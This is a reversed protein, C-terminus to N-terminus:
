ALRRSEQDLAATLFAIAEAAVQDYFAPGHGGSRAELIATHPIGLARLKGALRVAGDLWHEDDAATAFWQHRPWNLPHVHLTVTQQRAREVDGFAEWLTDYLHGDDRRHGDRMAAHFDIAPAIAAVAPFLSPHRYAVRLAGQGGMSTGILGIGPPRIGFRGEMAAIVPGTVYQEPTREPDFCPMIRDLWWSRGTRPAITPLGASEIATRLGTSDALKREQVGHLYIVAGGPLPRAPTFCECPHGAVDIMSWGPDTDPM